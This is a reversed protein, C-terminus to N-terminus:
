VAAELIQASLEIAKEARPDCYPSEPGPMVMPTAKHTAHDGTSMQLAILEYAEVTILEGQFNDSTLKILIM